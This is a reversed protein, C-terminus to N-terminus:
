RANDLGSGLRSKVDPLYTLLRNALDASLNAGVHVAANQQDVQVADYLRLLDLQSEKTTLRALGLGGRVADRVRQAGEASICILDTQLRIGTDIGVGIGASAVYSVINSLASGVESSMQIQGLPLGDSVAWIAVDNPLAEMRQELSAPIRVESRDSRDLLSKLDLSPGAVIMGNRAFVAATKNDGFIAHNKYSRRHLGLSKLKAEIGAQKFKGKGIVVFRAGNSVLLVEDLDKRPDIGTRESLADLTAFDFQHEHSKYLASAELKDVFCGALVKTDSPIFPLFASDIGVGKSPTRQCSLAAFLGAALLIAFPFRV